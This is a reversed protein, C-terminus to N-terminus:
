FGKGRKKGKLTIFDPILIDNKKSKLKGDKFRRYIIVNSVELFDAIAQKTKCIATENNTKNIVIYM